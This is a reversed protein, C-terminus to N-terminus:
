AALPRRGADDADYGCAFLERRFAGDAVVDLVAKIRRDDRLAGPVM